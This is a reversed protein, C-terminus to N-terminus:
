SRQENTVFGVIRSEFRKAINQKMYEVRFPRNVAPGRIGKSYPRTSRSMLM